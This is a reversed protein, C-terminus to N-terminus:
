RLRSSVLVSVLHLVTQVVAIAAVLVVLVRTAVLDGRVTDIIAALLILLSLEVALILRHFRLLMGARRATALAGSRPVSAADQVPARGDRARAVDVLDTESKILVAGLAALCGLFSWLGPHLADARLGLGVLLGAECLYHGVRDLYVGVTSTRGTVRAVEGDVCDLLLYLQILLVALVAGLIGDVTAAVAAGALGAVIMWGTLANPSIGTPLLARTLYPSLRRLYWRGAWHEGSRRDLLGPPQAIARIEEVTRLPRTTPTPDAAPVAGNQGAALTRAAVAGGPRRLLPEAAAASSPWRLGCTV